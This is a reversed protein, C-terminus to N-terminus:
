KHRVLVTGSLQMFGLSQNSQKLGLVLKPSHSSSVVGAPGPPLSRAKRKIKSSSASPGMRSKLDGSGLKDPSNACHKPLSHSSLSRHKFLLPSGGLVAGKRKVGIKPLEKPKHSKGWSSSDM